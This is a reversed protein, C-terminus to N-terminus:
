HRIPWPVLTTCLGISTGYYLTQIMFWPLLNEEVSKVVSDIGGGGGGSPM